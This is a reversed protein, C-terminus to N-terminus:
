TLVYLEEPADGTDGPLTEGPGGPNGDGLLNKPLLGVVGDRGVELEECYEM